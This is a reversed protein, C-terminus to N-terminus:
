GYAYRKGLDSGYGYFVPYTIGLKRTLQEVKERDPLMAIAYVFLGDKAYKQHFKKLHVL